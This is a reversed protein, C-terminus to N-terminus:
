RLSGALLVLLPQSAQYIAGGLVTAYADWGDPTHSGPRLFDFREKAWAAVACALMALDPQVPQLLLCVLFGIGMHAMKDKAMFDRPTM